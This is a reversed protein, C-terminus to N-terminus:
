RKSSSHQHQREGGRWYEPKSIDHPSCRPVLHVLTTAEISRPLNGFEDEIDTLKSGGFLSRTVAHCQRYLAM